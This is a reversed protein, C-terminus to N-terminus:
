SMNMMRLTGRGWSEIIAACISRMQSARIRRSRHIAAPTAGATLGVTVPRSVFEMRDCIAVDYCGRWISYDRQCIANAQAERLAQPYLRGREAVNSM